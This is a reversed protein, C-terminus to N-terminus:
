PKVQYDLADSVERNLRVSRRNIIEVDRADREARARQEAYAAIAEEIFRSRSAGKGALRDITRLTTEALTVSTKVRMGGFM